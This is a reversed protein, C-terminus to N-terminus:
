ASQQKRWSVYEAMDMKAPDKHPQAGGSPTTLPAPAKTQTKPKPLSVRGELRGIERAADRPSMANLEAVKAPNKALWYAMEAGQESDRVEEAVHPAFKGGDKLFANIVADYDPITPKIEEVRAEFDEVADRALKAHRAAMDAQDRATLKNEIRQAAKFAALEALYATYDGNFDEEKPPQEGAKPKGNEDTQASFQARLTELETAMAQMRRRTRESRSLRRPKDEAAEEGAESTTAQVDTTEAVPQGETEAPTAQESEAPAVPAQVDTPGPQAQTEDTMM